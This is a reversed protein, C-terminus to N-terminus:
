SRRRRLLLLVSAFGGLLFASPEPVQVIEITNFFGRGLGSDGNAVIVLDDGSNVHLAFSQYNNGQVWSDTEVPNNPNSITATTFGSYDTNGTSNGVTGIFIDFPDPNLDANTNRSVVFIEYIGASLGSIRAGLDINSGAGDDVFTASKANGAYVDSSIKGGLASNSFGTAGWNLDKTSGGTEKGLNLGITTANGNEDTIGSLTDGTILNWSTGTAGGQTHGPTTTDDSDVITGFSFLYANITAAQSVTGFAFLAAVALPLSKELKMQSRLLNPSLRTAMGYVNMTNKLKQTIISEIFRPENMQDYGYEKTHFFRVSNM